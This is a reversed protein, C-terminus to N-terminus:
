AIVRLAPVGETSRYQGVTFDVFNRVKTAVYSRGGYIVSLRQKKGSVEFQSLVPLLRGVRLDESVLSAPLLAIGMGAISAARIASSNSARLASDVDVSFSTGSESFKWTCRSGGCSAALLQHTNLQGPNGPSGNKALYSPSAVAIERLTTLQRCVLTSDAIERETSFGVDYGGPILDIAGDCTTVDFCVLPHVKQYAALLAFLGCEAFTTSAVVRLTGRVERNARSLSSELEDLQAIVSRASDLYERGVDTLSLKRTSRNLLRVNLHTELMSISRTASSASIGLQEAAQAFSAREVVRILVRIAHLHNM